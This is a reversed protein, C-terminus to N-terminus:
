NTTKPAIEGLRRFPHLINSTLGPLSGRQGIRPPRNRIRWCMRSGDLIARAWQTMFGNYVATVFSSAVLGMLHPWGRYLKYQLYLTNRLLFYYRRDIWALRAEEVRGHCVRFESVFELHYGAASLRLSLDDEEMM